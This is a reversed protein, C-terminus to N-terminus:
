NLHSELYDEIVYELQKTSSVNHYTAMSSNNNNTLTVTYTVTDDADDLEADFVVKEDGYSPAGAKADGTVSTIQVDTIKVDFNDVIAKRPSQSISTTISAYGVSLTLAIAIISLLILGKVNRM